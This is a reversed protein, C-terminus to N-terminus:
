EKILNKYLDNILPIITKQTLNNLVQSHLNRACAGALKIDSKLLKIKEALEGSNGSSFLLGNKGDAILEAIGDINSGIFPKKHLGSQLMFNPFPDRLSPLVCM